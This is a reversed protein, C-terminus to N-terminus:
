CSIKYGQKQGYIETMWLISGALRALRRTETERRAKRDALNRVIVYFIPQLDARVADRSCVSSVAVGVAQRM